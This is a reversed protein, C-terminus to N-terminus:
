NEPKARTNIPADPLPGIVGPHTAKLSNAVGARARQAPKSLVTLITKRLKPTLTEYGFHEQAIRRRTSFSGLEEPHDLLSELREALRRPYEADKTGDYSLLMEPPLIRAAEGVKSALVFRGCALYIPLKGTTRVQGPIDNTQTSLCIDMLNILRPLEGYPVRGLFVIRDSIDLAECRAKLRALGTGDGIIVGKVPRDRLLHIAEIMEWGYCMQWRESWVLTGLVGVVASGELGYKRRLDGDPVPRFQELDVGDPVVDASIGRSQLLEQHPHSRVIVGDSVSFATWELLRTLALGVRGRKGTSRSLEYIADGTDIIMPCRAILRYMAAAIFASFGMDFVYCLQPRHRTLCRFFQSIALIKNAERHAIHIDFDAALGDAFAQARIGMASAADGNVLFLITPKRM